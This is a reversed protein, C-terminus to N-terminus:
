AGEGCIRLTTEAREGQADYSVMVSIREVRGGGDMYIATEPDVKELLAALVGATMYPRPAEPKEAGNMRIEEYDEITLTEPEAEIPKKMSGEEHPGPAPGTHTHTHVGSRATKRPKQLFRKDVEEGCKALFEAIERPQCANLDALIKVQNRKDKATRYERLIENGTMVFSM